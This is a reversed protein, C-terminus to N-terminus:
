NISIEEVVIEKNEIELLTLKDVSMSQEFNYLKLEKLVLPLQEYSTDKLALTSKPLWLEEVSSESTQTWVDMLNRQFIRCMGFLERSLLWRIFIVPEEKVFIGLGNARITIPVCQPLCSHVVYKFKEEDICDGSTITIHPCVTNSSLYKIHFKKSLMDWCKLTQALITGSLPIVVALHKL